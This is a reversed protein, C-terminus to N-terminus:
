SSYETVTLSSFASTGGLHANFDGGNVIFPDRGTGSALVPGGRCAVVIPSITGSTIYARYTTTVSTSVQPANNTSAFADVTSGLFFAIVSGLTITCTTTGSFEVELISNINKPTISVSLIQIGQTNTPATDSSPLPMPNNTSIVASTSTRVQQLIGSPLASSVFGNADVSFFTSDFHSVGNDGVTSAAVAQSRQVEVRLANAAISDTRIVNTTTGAAVQAGTITINGALPVVPNTGPATFADVTIAQVAAGGSGSLTVFGNGDVTFDSNSFSATGLNILSSSGAAVTPTGVVTITSGSGTTSVGQTGLINLNGASPTASGSDATYTTAISGSTSITLTNTGPTGVVDITTGDGIVDINHSADPGVAGGSNGTLTEVGLSGSGVKHWDATVVGNASSFGRLIWYEDTVTNVWPQQISYNVDQPTPNRDNFQIIFPATSSTGSNATYPLNPPLQAM